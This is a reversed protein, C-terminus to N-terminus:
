KSEPKTILEIAKEIVEDRGEATGKVTQKVTIDPKLGIRQTQSGDIYTVALGSISTKICGPLTIEIANGNAGASPTGIVMANPADMFSMVMTELVSQTCENMLIIVKGNYQYRNKVKGLSTRIIGNDFIKSFTISDLGKDLQKEIFGRGSSNITSKFFKGPEFSNSSYFQQYESIEPKIYEGIINNSFLSYNDMKGYSGRVDIIVGETDEFKKMLKDVDGSKLTTANIYGIKKDEMFGNKKDKGLKKVDRNNNNYYCPVDLSLKEGNRIVEIEAIEKTSCLLYDEFANTFHNKDSVSIYKNCEEIRKEITTGNIAVVIDGLKLPSKDEMGAIVIQGDINFISANPKYTGFHQQLVKFNDYLFGHSDHIYTTLNAISLVYSEKDKQLALEPIKDYLVQDWDEDMLNKYPYFYEIINWYRFLGLLRMGTDEYKISNGMLSDSSVNVIDGREFVAYGNDNDTVKVGSLNELYDALNNGLVQRNKIWSFGVDLYAKEEVQHYLVEQEKSLTNVEFPFQNLWIAMIDGAEEKTTAELVKQMVRFLEADWNINGATIDPHRYKAFGWVKALTHLNKQQVESLKEIRIRSDSAFETDQCRKLDKEETRDSNTCSIFTLVMVILLLIFSIIIKKSFVTIKVERKKM